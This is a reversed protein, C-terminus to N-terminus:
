ALPLGSSAKTERDHVEVISAVLDHIQTSGVHALFQCTAREQCRHEYQSLWTEFCREHELSVRPYVFPPRAVGCRWPKPTLRARFTNQRSCLEVFNTDAGVTEMLQNSSSGRKSRRWVFRKNRDNSSAPRTARDAKRIQGASHRRDAVM